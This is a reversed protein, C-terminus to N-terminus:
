DYDGRDVGGVGVFVCDEVSFFDVVFWDGLEGYWVDV